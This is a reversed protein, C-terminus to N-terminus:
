QGDYDCSYLKFIYCCPYHCAILLEPVTLAKLEYLIEGIILNNALALKSLM